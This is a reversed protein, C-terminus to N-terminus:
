YRRQLVLQDNTRTMQFRTLFSNGLLAYPMPAPMVVADVEHVTVDGVRVSNLKVRWAQTAGNATGMVAPQATRLNVGLRQADAVGIAVFSAGTDVMFRVSGGNIQGQTLFHGNSVAQLVIRQSDTEPSAEEASVPGQGLRLTQRTGNVEVEAQSTEVSLVKVGQHSQGVAVSRPPGGDVVLLAKGGLIGSLVVSQAQAMGALLGAALLLLAARPTM